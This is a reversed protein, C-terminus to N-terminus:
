KLDDATVVRADVSINPNPVIEGNLLSVATNLAKSGIADADQAVTFALAGSTLLADIEDGSDFGAGLFAGDAAANGVAISSLENTGFMGVCNKEALMDATYDYASIDDHSYMSELLAYETEAFAARFGNERQTDAIPFANSSLIGINGTLIGKARLAKILQEGALRGAAENDTLVNAAAPFSSVSDIYIIEVKKKEANKLAAPLADSECPALIIADASDAVADNICEIQVDANHEAPQVWEYVVNDFSEAASRCANNILEWRSDESGTTILYIKLGSTDRSPKGGSDSCACLTLVVILLVSLPLALKLLKKM